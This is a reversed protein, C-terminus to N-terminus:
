KKGIIKPEYNEACHRVWESMNGDAYIKALGKIKNKMKKSVRIRLIENKHVVKM